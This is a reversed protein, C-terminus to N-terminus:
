REPLLSADQAPFNLTCTLAHSSSSKSGPACGILTISPLVSHHSALASNHVKVPMMTSPM